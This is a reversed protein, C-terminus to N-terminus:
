SKYYDTEEASRKVGSHTDAQQPHICCSVPNFPQTEPTRCFDHVSILSKERAADQWTKTPESEPCEDAEGGDRQARDYQFGCLKRRLQRLRAM